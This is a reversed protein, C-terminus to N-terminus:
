FLKAQKHLNDANEIRFLSFHIGKLLQVIQEIAAFKEDGQLTFRDRFKEADFLCNGVYNKLFPLETKLAQIQIDSVYGGKYQVTSYKYQVTICQVTCQVTDDRCGYGM